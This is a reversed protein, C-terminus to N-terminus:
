PSPTTVKLAVSITDTGAVATSKWYIDWELRWTDTTQIALNEVPTTGVAGSAWVTLTGQLASTEDYIRVVISELAGTGAGGTGTVSVVGLDFTGAASATLKIANSYTRTGGAPGMLGNLTCTAGAIDATLGSDIGTGSWELTLGEVGVGANLYMYNYTAASATAIFAATILLTVIKLSKKYNINM